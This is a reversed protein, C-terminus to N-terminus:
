PLGHIENTVKLVLDDNATTGVINEAADRFSDDLLLTSRIVVVREAVKEIGITSVGDVSFTRCCCLSRTNFVCM